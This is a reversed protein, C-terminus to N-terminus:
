GAPLAFGAIVGEAVFRAFSSGLVRERHAKEVADGAARLSEGRALASLFDWECPDLSTVNVAFAERHVLVRDVGEARRPTGDRGPQNAEWIAAVPHPSALLRVTPHLRFEIKGHREEPVAALSALDLASADAALFSEHCAWELRAVDPLCPLVTAHEYGALFEPFRAGYANLDGSSSPHAHAFRDAAEQFFSPGVLRQVVPYTAALAGRLNALVTRRYVEIGGAVPGSAAFLEELFSEQRRALAKM